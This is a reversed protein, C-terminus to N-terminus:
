FFCLFWLDFEQCKNSWLSLLPIESFCRSRKVSQALSKSQTSWLLSHLIRLCIPIGSWRVQRRLFRFMRPSAVTLVKCPAVLKNLIKFPTCCPQLNDDQQNLKYASYVVRFALSSLGCPPILIALLFILLRLYSSSVVKFTSLSSSSFFLKKILISSSLFFAPKFSLMWFLLIMADPAVMEHIISLSFFFCHCIKNPPSWFWQLIAVAAM